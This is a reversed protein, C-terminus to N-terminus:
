NVRPSSKRCHRPMSQRPSAGRWKSAFAATRRSGSSAHVAPRPPRLGGDYWHVTVPGMGERPGFEWVVHNNGGIVESDVFDTKVAEVSVVTPAPVRRDCAAITPLLILIFLSLLHKM